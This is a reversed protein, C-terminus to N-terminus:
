GPTGHHVWPTRNSPKEHVIVRTGPPTMPSKNFDYPGFLYAYASLATNVRSKRLLNLTILLKFLLRDCESIPSDPDTM